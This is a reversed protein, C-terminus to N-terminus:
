SADTTYVVYLHLDSASIGFTQDNLPTSYDVCTSPSKILTMPYVKIRATFFSIAVTLSRLLLALNTTTTTPAGNLGTTITSFTSSDTTIRIANRTITLLNRGHGPEYTAIDPQATKSQERLDQNLTDFHCTYHKHTTTITLLIGLTVIVAICKM